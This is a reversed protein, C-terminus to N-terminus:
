KKRILLGGLCLLAITAPEPIQHIILTDEVTCTGFDPTSVLQIVVDGEGECHFLIDDFYVGAPATPASYSIISGTVGSTGPQPFYPGWSEYPLLESGDPAPGKIVIGSQPNITGPGELVVLAWYVDSGTTYGDPTHINLILEDSPAVTIESDVPDPDGNVSIQLVMANAMATLSLIMALVLLKKM